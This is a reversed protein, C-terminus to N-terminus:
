AGGVSEALAARRAYRDVLAADPVYVWHPLFAAAYRYERCETAILLPLLLRDDLLAADGEALVQRYAAMWRQQARAIWRRVPQAAVGPTRHLVVRGVHDLSALMGAVDRVPPQPAARSAAPLIPNGDFDTLWLRGDAQLVQGIHLDGHCPIVPTRDITGLAALDARILPAFGALREGEPGSTVALAADLDAEADALWGAITDAEAWGVGDAAFALHMRAVMAGLDAIVTFPDVRGGHVHDRVCEVAWTWGDQADPLYDVATALLLDRWTIVARVTPTLAGGPQGASARALAALRAPAPSPAAQRQWKVVQVEGVVVSENTQDVTIPRETAEALLTPPEDTPRSIHFEGSDVAQLLAAAVGDGPRARRLVGAREIAPVILPDSPSDLTGDVILLWGTGGPLSGLHWGDILRLRVHDSGGAARAPLLDAPACAAVAAALDSVQPLPDVRTM